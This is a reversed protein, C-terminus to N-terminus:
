NEISRARGLRRPRRVLTKAEDLITSSGSGNDPTKSDANTSKATKLIMVPCVQDDFYKVQCNLCQLCENPNIDGLPTIAQVMCDQACLHCPDGCNRYRKLWNFMALKGPIALAAGLPCLYRCYFREIFLGAFLLAVVFLVFPWERMFRLVIATKFPEIEALREADALAYVSIGLLGLFLLYKIPWLREHLGWPLSLQPVKAFKAVRNLLEQLAGFPCLWGCFAGRGWFLLSAAVSCWLIFILPELLFYEWRFDGILANAFVLINVVSLQAQAYWGIWVLTFLLFGDRIFRTLKPYQVLHNQFFFLATLLFIAGSLIIIQGSKQDWIRQWLEQKRPAKTNAGVPKNSTQAVAPKTTILYKEPLRYSLEFSTFVKDLAGVSRPALLQLRWPSAPDFKIEKQTKFIGMEKFDPAGEALVKRLRKHGRDRFRISARDQILQIRDFIGGRVYGSGKFSFRGNGMILFANEGPKLGKQLLGYERDGLLSRAIAPIALSAAFLEIFLENKAGTEPREIAKRNGTKEFATNIDEITLKLRRVSGDGILSLWDQKGTASLNLSKVSTKTNKGTTTGALGLSQAALFAANRITDDIVLVTVTAGSVIDAPPAPKNASAADKIVNLDKYADIFAKIKADPIGALVIPESHSVLKAGTIKGDLDIGILIKIPKGSYGIASDFDTNLFVYGIAKNDKRAPVVSKNADVPGYRDAGPVLDGASQSKVASALADSAAADSPYVVAAVIVVLLLAIFMPLRQRVGKSIALNSM